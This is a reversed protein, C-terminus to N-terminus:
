ASTSILTPDSYCRLEIFLFSFMSNQEESTVGKELVPPSPSTAPLRGLASVSIPHWTRTIVGFYAQTDYLTALLGTLLPTALIVGTGLLVAKVFQKWTLAM